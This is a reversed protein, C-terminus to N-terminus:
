YGNQLLQLSYFLCTITSPFFFSLHQWTGKMTSQQFDGLINNRRFLSIFSYYFFYLYVFFIHIYVYLCIFLYIFMGKFADYNHRLFSISSIVRFLFNFLCIGDYMEMCNSRMEKAKTLSVSSSGSCHVTGHTGLSRSLTLPSFM